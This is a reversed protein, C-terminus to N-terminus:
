TRPRRLRGIEVLDGAITSAHPSPSTQTMGSPVSASVTSRPSRARASGTSARPQFRVARSCTRSQPPGARRTTPRGLGDRRVKGIATQAVVDVLVLEPRPGRASTRRSWRGCNTSRRRPRGHPCSSPWWGNAGTPTPAGPSPWRPWAPTAACPMGRGAGAVGERGGTVIVEALRGDVVLRGDAGIRGADGTAFWGDGNAAPEVADGSATRYCRLLMPGRLLIEGDASRSTSTSEVGDLPLGDYVVGSGTETMGYTTVVNAPLRGAPGVRGAPHGPLRRPRHASPPPWWRSWPAGGSGSATVPGRLRDLVTLPTGTVLARTVVSLGGVHALPLCALWRDREPRRGAPGLHGPGLGARRRPHPGGGEARRHHRQHGRGPRRGDDVPRGAGVAALLRRRAGDPLRPDVPLVADGRGM